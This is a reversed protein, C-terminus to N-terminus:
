HQQGNSVVGLDTKAPRKPPKQTNTATTAVPQAGALCSHQFAERAPGNLKRRNAEAMCLNSRQEPTEGAPSVVPNAALARNRTPPSQVTKMCKALFSRRAAGSLKGHTANANCVAAPTSGKSPAVPPPASFANSGLSLVGAGLAAVLVARNAAPM